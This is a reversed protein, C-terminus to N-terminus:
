LGEWVIPCEVGDTVVNIPYENADLTIVSTSTAGDDLSATVTITNDTKVIAMATVLPIDDLVDDVIENKDEETYYDVGKEPTHGDTGDFEGSEKAQTLVDNIATSLSTVNLKEALADGVAKADAAQGEKTLTKDIIVTSVNNGPYDSSSGEPDFWIDGDVSGVPETHQVYIGVNNKATNKANQDLTQTRNCSITNEDTYEKIARTTIALAEQVPINTDAM